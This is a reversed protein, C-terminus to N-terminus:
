RKKGLLLDLKQAAQEPTLQEPEHGPLYSEDAGIYKLWAPDSPDFSVPKAKSVMRPLIVWIFVLGFVMKLGFWIDLQKGSTLALLVVLALGLVLLGAIWGIIYVAKNGRTFQIQPNASAATGFMAQLFPAFTPLNNDFVGLSEFSSSPIALKSRKTRVTCISRGPVPEMINIEKIESYPFHANRGKDNHMMVASEDATLQHRVKRVDPIYQYTPMATEM